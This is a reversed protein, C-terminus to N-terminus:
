RRAFPLKQHEKFLLSVNNPKYEPTQTLPLVVKGAGWSHNIFSPSHLRKPSQVRNLMAKERVKVQIM